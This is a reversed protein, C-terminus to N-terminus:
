IWDIEDQDITFNSVFNEVITRLEKLQSEVETLRKQYYHITETYADAETEERMGLNMGRTKDYLWYGDRGKSLSLTETRHILKHKQGM